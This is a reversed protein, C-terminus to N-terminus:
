ARVLGAMPADVAKQLGAMRFTMYTELCMSLVVFIALYKWLDATEDNVRTIVYSLKAPEIRPDIKDLFNGAKLANVDDDSLRAAELERPNLGVGYYVPSLSQRPHKDLFERPLSDLYSDPLKLQYVGPIFANQYDFEYRGDRARAQRPETNGEPTTITVEINPIREMAPGTWAFSQGATLNERSGRTQADTLHYITEHILISFDMSKHWNNWTGDVSTTWVVVQGGGLQRELVLADGNAAALVTRTNSDRPSLTWWKSTDVAGSLPMRDATSFATVIPNSPDKVEVISKSGAAIPGTTPTETHAPEAHPKDSPQDAAFLTINQHAKGLSATLTGSHDGMIVWLGHGSNVYEGLKEELPAPVEKVNNLLVAYYDDLRISGCDEPAVFNAQILTKEPKDPRDAQMAAQLSTEAETDASTVPTTRIVLVPLTQWVDVAFVSQNDAALADVVDTSIKVWRSGAKKFTYDFSVTASQNPALDSIVQTAIVKESAPQLTKSDGTALNLTQTGAKADQPDGTVSFQVNVTPVANPGSNKITATFRAPREVGAVSPQMSISGVNINSATEDPKLPYSHVEVRHSRSTEEGIASHWAASSDPSNDLAWNSRQEDSVVLVVKRMNPGHSLVERAAAIAEPISCDTNGPKLSHIGAKLKNILDTERLPIPLPTFKRPQHEAMIVSLTDRGRLAPTVGTTLDDVVNQAKEFLTRSDARRGMSLSHDIVVAVDVASNTSALNYKSLNLKPQAILWALFALVAMRLAMLLWHDVQKRRKMQLPSQKLFIMAGWLLPTTKQRHLLHIIIPISVSLLGAMLLSTGMLFTM